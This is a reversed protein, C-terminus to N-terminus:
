RNTHTHTHTYIYKGFGKKYTKKDLKFGGMLMGSCLTVWQCGFNQTSFTGSISGASNGCASFTDTIVDALSARSCTFFNLLLARTLVADQKIVSNMTNM